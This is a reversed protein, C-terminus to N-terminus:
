ALGRQSVAQNRVGMGFAWLRAKYSQSAMSNCDKNRRGLSMLPEPVVSVRHFLAAKM